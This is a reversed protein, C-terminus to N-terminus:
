TGRQVRGTHTGCNSPKVDFAAPPQELPRVLSKKKVGGGERPAKGSQRRLKHAANDRRM